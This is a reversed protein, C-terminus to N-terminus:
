NAKESGKPILQANYSFQYGNPEGQIFMETTTPAVQLECTFDGTEEDRTMKTNGLPVIKETKRFVGKVTMNYNTTDNYFAWKLELDNEIRFLLGNGNDKFCKVVTNGSYSPTGNEFTINDSMVPYATSLVHIFQKKKKLSIIIIIIPCVAKGPSFFLSFFFSTLTAKDYYM